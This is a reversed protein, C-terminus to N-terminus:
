TSRRELDRGTAPAPMKWVSPVTLTAAVLVVLLVFSGMLTETEGCLRSVPGVLAMGIPLFALSGFMDYASVRSLIDSPIERQLTTSWLTGFTASGIGAVFYTAAIVWLPAGAALALLPLAFSFSAFTATRLPWDVKWRLMLAGGLISGVGGVALVVGWAPAGGLSQKAIVPGLVVLPASELVNVISFELVIVWLWTRSWFATWGQQLQFVFSEVVPRPTWEVSVLYLSVVSAFYSLGDILVAWGPSSVAIILGAIAPGVIQATSGSLNLLANAQHLKEKSVVQPVLGSMSPGFIASGIGVIAALVIFGWLPPHSLLIWAGLGVEAFTRLLDSSLMVLRRSWRDGIVGGVLLLVVVPVLGAAAVFGVDTATGHELVAFTIAVPAMGNGIQSTARGIFFLRFNREELAGVWEGLRV